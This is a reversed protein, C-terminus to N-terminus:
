PLSAEWHNSVVNGCYWYPKWTSAYSCLRRHTIKSYETNPVTCQVYDGFSCRFDRKGDPKRGIFVERPSPGWEREGFPEYNLRSVVYLVCMVIGVSSLTFPLHYSVHARLREKIIRIRREVRAVHGGAGSIDVDVGLKGLEDVLTVVAGEGDSMIVSTKYGQSGLVGLFHAIGKRVHETSRSSKKLLVNNLSYAMTLGLPTAVIIDFKDIIMIGIALVQDKQVTKAKIMIDAVVTARKTTKGNMSAMNRGWIAEAVQFDRSSIVFNSGTNVISMAMGVSPFGMRAMLERAARAREIERKTFARLNQEVTTMMANDTDVTRWGCSYFRGESGPISKRGFRYVRM